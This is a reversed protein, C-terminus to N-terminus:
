VANALETFDEVVIDWDAEARLDTRQQPGYETPRRVFATSFGLNAAAALDSNHAAVLMCRGPELDMARASALYAEPMPKFTKAVESGLIYDWPLDARKAMNIALEINANSLTALTYRRSLKRLAPVVEPWPDLRHWARNFDLRDDESLVLDFEAAVQDLSELHLQDLPVWPIEGSRVREMSPQYLGRWRDAIAAWDRSIGLRTGLAHGERIISTRWDVVTGFLDFCLAEVAKSGAATRSVASIM